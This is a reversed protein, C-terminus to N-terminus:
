RGRQPFGGTTLNNAPVILYNGMVLADLRAALFTDVAESPACVIPQGRVNFSTNLLIPMGSIRGFGDLLRWFHGNDEKAVAQVRASGGVPTIAPLQKQFLKHVQTVFLM